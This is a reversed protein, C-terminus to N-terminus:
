ILKSKKAFIKYYFNRLTRRHRFPVLLQFIKGRIEQFRGRLYESTTMHPFVVMYIESSKTLKAVARLDLKGQIVCHIWGFFKHRLSYFGDFRDSRVSGRIEFQWASEGAVILQSLIEKKWISPVLAARYLAGPPVVGILPDSGKRPLPEAKLNLYNMGELCFREYIATFKINEVKQDLPADEIMLLINEAEIMDLAFQLNSSWDKDEGTCITTIRQDQYIKQNSLLYVRHECDPWFKYWRSFFLDWLGSYKDCSLVLIALNSM